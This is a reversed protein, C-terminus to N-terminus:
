ATQWSCACFVWLKLISMGLSSTARTSALHIRKVAQAKEGRTAHCLRAVTTNSMTQEYRVWHRWVAGDCSGLAAQVQSRRTALAQALQTKLVKSDKWKMKQKPTSNLNKFKLLTWWRSPVGSLQLVFCLWFSFSSPALFEFALTWTM